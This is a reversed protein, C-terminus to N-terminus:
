AQDKELERELLSMEKTCLWGVKTKLAWGLSSEELFGELREPEKQLM